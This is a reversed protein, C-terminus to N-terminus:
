QKGVVRVIQEETIFGLKSLVEGLRGGEKRQYGIAKDLDSPTILGLTILLEGLKFYKDKPM